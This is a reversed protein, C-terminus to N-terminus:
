GSRILGGRTRRGRRATTRLAAPRRRGLRHAAAGPLGPALPRRAVEAVHELEAALEVAPVFQMRTSCWRRARDDFRWPYPDVKGPKGPWVKERDEFMESTVRVSGGFAQVGTVYFVIEDGPEIQEAMGRRGEKAGILEFGRERTARFNDLSGTLVWTKRWPPLTYGGARGPLHGAHVFFAIGM